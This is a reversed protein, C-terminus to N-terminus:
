TDGSLLLGKFGQAASTPAMFNLLVKTSRRTQRRMVSPAGLSRQSTNPHTYRFGFCIWVTVQLIIVQNKLAQLSLSGHMRICKKQIMLENTSNIGLGLNPYDGLWTDTMELWMRPSPTRPATSWITELSHRAALPIGPSTSLLPVAFAHNFNTLITKWDLTQSCSSTPEDHSM